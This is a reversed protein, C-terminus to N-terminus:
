RLLSGIARKIESPCYISKAFDLLLGAARRKPLDEMTALANTRLIHSTYGDIAALAVHKGEEDSKTSWIRVLLEQRTM